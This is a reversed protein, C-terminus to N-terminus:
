HKPKNKKTIFLWTTERTVTPDVKDRARLSVFFYGRHPIAPLTFHVTSSEPDYQLPHWGGRVHDMRISLTDLLIQNPNLIQARIEKPLDPLVEGDRPSRKSVLLERARLGDVFSKFTTQRFILRRDMLLPKVHRTVNGEDCTTASWYGAAETRAVVREDYGGYSYALHRVPRHLHDELIRRSERLEHDLWVLYESPNMAKSPHTLLPHTLTHSEIDAGMLDLYEVDDWTM